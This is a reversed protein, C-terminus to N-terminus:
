VLVMVRCVYITILFDRHVQRNCYFIDIASKPLTNASLIMELVMQEGLDGSREGSWMERPHSSFETYEFLGWVGSSSFIATVSVNPIHVKSCQVRDELVCNPADILTQLCAPSVKFM